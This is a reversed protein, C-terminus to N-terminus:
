ILPGGHSSEYIVLRQWDSDMTEIERRVTLWPTDALVDPRCKPLGYIISLDRPKRRLSALLQDLVARVIPVDFPNFMLVVTVDDPVVFSGADAEIISVDQCVLKPRAHSVNQKALQCLEASLEVGVVRGFPHLGAQILARGMGCGYDLFADRHAAIDVHQFSADLSEYQVPQYGFHEADYNLLDGDISGSTRIGLRWERYATRATRLGGRLTRTLGRRRLSQGLRSLIGHPPEHLQLDSTSM